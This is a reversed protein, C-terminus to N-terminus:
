FHRHAAPPPRAPCSSAAPAGSPHPSGPQPEGFGAGRGPVGGAGGLQWSSHPVGPVGLGWTDGPATVAWPWRTGLTGGAAPPAKDPSAPSPHARTSCGLRPWVPLAKAPSTCAHLLTGSRALVGLLTCFSVCMLLFMYSHALAHWLTCTHTLLSTCSRAFPHMHSCPRTPAHQLMCMHALLVCSYGLSHLLMCARALAHLLTDSCACALMSMCSHTLAHLLTCAHALVHLLAYCCARSCPCPLAHLMCMCALVRLLVGSHALAHM